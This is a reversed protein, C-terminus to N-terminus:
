DLYVGFYYICMLDYSVGFDYIKKFTVMDDAGLAKKAANLIVDGIAQLIIKKM